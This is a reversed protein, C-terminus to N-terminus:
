ANGKVATNFHCLIYTVSYYFFSSIMLMSLKDLFFPLEFPQMNAATSADCSM